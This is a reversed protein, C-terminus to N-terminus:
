NAGSHVSLPISDILFSSFGPSVEIPLKGVPTIEGLLIRAAAQQSVPVGGWAIVYGRVTPVQQLLYPNGFAMVMVEPKRTITSNLWDVFARPAAATTVNWRQGVYSSVLVVDAKDILEDFYSYDVAPSEADIFESRLSQVGARLTENFRVGAALDARTAFTISLVNKKNIPILALSDRMVVISKQAIDQAVALHSANGVVNRLSDLNVYRRNDLGLNGKIVLIRRVSENIRDISYLGERIGDEIADIATKIDPPQILVDVGAAVAMRASNVPGYQNLVGGMDMADSVILGDFGLENRLLDINVKPSLTGPTNSSDLAPMAGHFTMMAGVGAKIAAKFPILELSDLRSRSATVVPLALHSNVDTDGHGPFHKGTAVMGNDQIGRIYATGLRAVLYPDQGYSRTNIVPNDPNNNVDLVPAYNIHIGLARGELATIRGMAYALATDGTAGLAMNPPSLTAGGLDIANPVFYGGRARMGAGTELDASVLLPLPSLAQLANLKAAIEIPSGVSILLGGVKEQQIAAELKKWQDSDRAVYDGILNPWVMQAIKERTSLTALVSDAWQEAKIWSISKEHKSHPSAYEGSHESNAGTATKKGALLAGAALAFFWIAHKIQM